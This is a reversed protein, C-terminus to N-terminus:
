FLRLYKMSLYGEATLIIHDDVSIGLLEGAQKLRNTIQPLESVPQRSKCTLGVEAVFYKKM